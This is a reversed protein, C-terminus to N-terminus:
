ASRLLSILLLFFLSSDLVSNGLLKVGGGEGDSRPSWSRPTQLYVPLPSINRFGVADDDVSVLVPVAGSSEAGGDEGGVRGDQGVGV